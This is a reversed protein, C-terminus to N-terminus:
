VKEKYKFSTKYENFELRKEQHLRIIVNQLMNLYEQESPMDITKAMRIFSYEKAPNQKLVTRIHRYIMEQKSHETMYQGFMEFAAAISQVQYEGTLFIHRVSELLFNRRINIM